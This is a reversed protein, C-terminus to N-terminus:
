AGRLAARVLGIGLALVAAALCIAGPYVLYILDSV